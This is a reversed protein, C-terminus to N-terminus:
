DTTDDRPRWDLDITLTGDDSFTRAAALVQELGLALAGPCEGLRRGVVVGTSSAPAHPDVADAVLSGDYTAFAVYRGDMGGGIAMFVREEIHELLLDEHRDGDLSLIADEITDWDPSEVFAEHPTGGDWNSLALRGVYLHTRISRRSVFIGGVAEFLIVSALVVTAASRGVDPLREAIYIALGIAVGAQPTLGLGLGLRRRLPLRAGIGGGALAGAFKGALRAAVYGVGLLLVPWTLEPEISVGAVTFFLLFLPTELTALAGFIRQRMEAAAVNTVFIGAALGTLPYLYRLSDSLLTAVGVHVLICLLLEAQSDIRRAVVILVLGAALGLLLGGVGLRAFRAIATVIEGSGPELLFRAVAWTISFVIATLVDSWAHAALLGEAYSSRDRRRSILAALTLPGGSGALTALLIAEAAGAGCQIAVVYVLVGCLLYQITGVPLTWGVRRIERLNIREGASFMLLGLAVDMVPGLREVQGASVLGLGVPGVLVGVLLFGVLESLGRTKLLRGAWFAGVALVAIALSGM